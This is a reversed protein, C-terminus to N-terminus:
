PNTLSNKYVGDIYDSLGFAVMMDFAARSPIAIKKPKKISVISNTMDTFTFKQEKTPKCGILGFTPFTTLVLSSILFLNKKM